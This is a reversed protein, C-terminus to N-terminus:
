ILCYHLPGTMAYAGDADLGAPRVHLEADVRLVSADDDDLHVRADRAARRERRLRGSEGDRADGRLEGDTVREVLDLVVDGFRRGAGELRGDVVAHHLHRAEIELLKGVRILRKGGRHLRN